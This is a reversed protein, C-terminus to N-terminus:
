ELFGGEVAEEVVQGLRMELIAPPEAGTQLTNVGPMAPFRCLQAAGAGM